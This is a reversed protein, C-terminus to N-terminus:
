KGTESVDPMVISSFIRRRRDQGPQNDLYPALDANMKASLSKLEEDSLELPFKHYSVGDAALDLRESHQLYRSFDDLLTAVFAIFYRMHDDKSFNAIDEASLMTTRTDVTYVKEVTGRVPREEVVQLIGAKALRNIHRYLTAQPVDRLDDALQQSTKQNGSLAMLIRMRIPHLILDVKTKKATM